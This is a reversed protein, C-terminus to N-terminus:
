SAIFKPNRPSRCSVQRAASHYYRDPACLSAVGGGGWTASAVLVAHNDTLAVLVKGKDEFLKM